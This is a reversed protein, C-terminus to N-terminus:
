EALQADTCSQELDYGLYFYEHWVRRQGRRAILHIGEVSACLDFSVAPDATRTLVAPAVAIDATGAPV